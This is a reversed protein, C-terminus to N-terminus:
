PGLAGTHARDGLRVDPAIERASRDTVEHEPYDDIPHSPPSFIIRPFACRPLVLLLNVLSRGLLADRASQRGSFISRAKVAVVRAFVATKASVEVWVTLASKLKSIKVM